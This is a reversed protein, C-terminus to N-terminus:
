KKFFVRSVLRRTIYRRWRLKQSLSSEKKGATVNDGHVRYYILPTDILTVKGYIEGMLGIWQDHMPIHRPIPMIKKLLKRDFAMCCGMYSNKLLNRIIGKKSGREDFFSYATINLKEDTVYANHLVLTAGNEFAETVRKVKEPLWVDDQDCLFIKDGRCYRIANTFNAVVGRGRGEVYVIREDEQMLRRVVTETVGGPKDDSVVIEDEHSLQPLISRIQDEIYKEGKYAAMAVSIM